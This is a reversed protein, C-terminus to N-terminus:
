GARLLRQLVGVVVEALREARGLVAYGGEGFVRAAYRPAERDVTVCFPHVGQMRAEVFAQRTDELGYRGEYVDVDNPRGDSLLLLLRHRAGQASLLATAHRVAAGVRTYGDPELAAVVRRVEAGPPDDFRKVAHLDVREPGEGHFAFVAHRDGLAALAETVVLLAEKEVDITRRTGAVWSDTSASVDVLLLVAADRRTRRDALYLRGDLVGGARADAAATVYADVDVESGDVQGRLLARRPRLREFSRRVRRVLTAHRRLADEAWAESGLPAGLERVIAGRLRYRAARYDWEPYVIGAATTREERAPAPVRPPADDSVLVEHPPEPTRVLRAERLESLSDALESPKAHETRDTPRQLGAPDEVSEQPDDARVLWVGPRADDEDEAAPRVRPRRTMRHVTTRMRRSHAEADHSASAPSEPSPACTGWLAVPATGRYRGPLTRIRAAERRAWALAHAPTDPARIDAPPVDPPADLLARVHAEVAAEQPTLRSAPRMARAAARAEAIEAALRPALQSLARDVAAAEALLFLDRVLADHAPLSAPTGRAARAAQELALVRYTAMAAEAPLPALSRPLRIRAGDTCPLAVTPRAHAPVSSALRALFPLPPPPEAVAIEPAGPFLAAVFLDLRRRVEGLEPSTASRAHRAWLARAATAAVHAAEILVEEPESV